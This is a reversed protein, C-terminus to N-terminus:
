ESFGLVVQVSVSDTSDLTVRGQTLAADASQGASVRAWFLSVPPPFLSPPHLMFPMRTLYIM